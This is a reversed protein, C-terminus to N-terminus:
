ALLCYRGCLTITAALVAARSSFPMSSKAQDNRSFEDEFSEFSGLREFTV